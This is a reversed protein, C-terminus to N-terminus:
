KVPINRSPKSSDNYEPVSSWSNSSRDSAGLVERIETDMRVDSLRIESQYSDDDFGTLEIKSHRTTTKERDEESSNRNDVSMLGVDGAPNLMMLLSFSTISCDFGVFGAIGDFAGVAIFVVVTSSLSIFAWITTWRLMNALDEDEISSLTARLPRVFLWSGGFCIFLDSIVSAIFPGNDVEYTCGEDLDPDEVGHPFILTSILIFCGNLGVVVKGINITRENITHYQNVIEIRLIIFVYLLVRHLAYIFSVFKMSWDCWREENDFYWRSETNLVFTCQLLATLM